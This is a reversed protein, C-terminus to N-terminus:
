AGGPLPYWRTMDVVQAPEDARGFSITGPEVISLWGAHRRGDALRVWIRRGVEPMREQPDYGERYALLEALAWMVGEGVSGEIPPNIRYAALRMKLWETEIKEM